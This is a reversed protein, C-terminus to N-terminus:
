TQSRYFVHRGVKKVKSFKDAWYPKVYDAHYFTADGVLDIYNGHALYANAVIQSQRWAEKDTPRDSKGDCWWSFQCGNANSQQIVACIDNPFKPSDVRNMTVEAVALQGYIPEGRAEHYINLALCLAPTTLLEIM